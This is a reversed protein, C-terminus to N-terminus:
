GYRRILSTIKTLYSNSCSSNSQQSTTKLGSYSLTNGADIHKDVHTNAEKVIYAHKTSSALHNRAVRM